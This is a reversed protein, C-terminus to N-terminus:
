VLNLRRALGTLEDGPMRKSCRLWDVVLGRSLPHHHVHEPAIREAELILGIASRREDLKHHVRAMELQHRVQREVPLLHPDVKPGIEAALQFDGLELATSVRHLAVNTPGFATWLLNDDRGLLHAAGGARSLFKETLARNRSRAAAMAGTLQLTGLVSVHARSSGDGIFRASSSVDSVLEAADACRGASLLVHAVSRTLSLLVTHEGAQEAFDYGRQACLCALDTEGLKTLVAAGAQYTLAALRQCRVKLEDNYYREAHLLDNLLSPLLTGLYGFRSAQYADWM